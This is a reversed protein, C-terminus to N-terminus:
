GHKKRRRAPPIGLQERYKVVTRRALTVGREQLANAIAQDSLPKAPDEADIIEKVIGRVAEWSLDDGARTELGGSFFRRLPVLGRPTQMWKEAVARSITGVHVGLDAAVDIMPLPKLHLAGHDFFDRQRELVIDVVRKLTQGRQAISEILWEASRVNGAVFDRTAKEVARDRVMKGYRPSIRLAPLRSDAVTGVYRDRFEDYEVVVDPVIPPVDQDIVDRGPTLRLRSMRERAATIRAIAMGSEREIKPLRNQLLDDFHRELITRVDQWGAREADNAADREAVEAQLLLCEQVSRAALGPPELSRQLLHLARELVALDVGGGNQAAITELDASLRGDDDIFDILLSGAETIEEARNPFTWQKRLQEALSEGRSPANAMADLKRDREGDSSAGRREWTNDADFSDGYSSEIQSLRTFDDATAHGDQQVVLPREDLREVDAADRREQNLEEDDPGPEVRELAVNSELEQEIREELALMPLQLIEMSQIMRPALRMSTALKPTQITSLRM